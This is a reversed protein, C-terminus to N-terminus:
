RKVYHIIWQVISIMIWISFGISLLYICLETWGVGLSPTRPTESRKRKVENIETIFEQVQVLDDPIRNNAGCTHKVITLHERCKACNLCGSLQRTNYSNPEGFRQFKKAGPTSDYWGFEDVSIYFNNDYRSCDCNRCKGVEFHISCKVCRVCSNETFYVGKLKSNVFDKIAYANSQESM